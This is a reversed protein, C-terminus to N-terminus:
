CMGGRVAKACLALVFMIGFIASAFFAAPSQSSSGWIGGTMSSAAFIILWGQM